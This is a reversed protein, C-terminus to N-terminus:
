LKKEFVYLTQYHKETVQYTMGILKVFDEGFSTLEGTTTMALGFGCQASDALLGSLERSLHKMESLKEYIFREAETVDDFAFAEIVKIGDQLELWNDIISLKLADIPLQPNLRFCVGSNNTTTKVNWFGYADIHNDLTLKGKSIAEIFEKIDYQKTM